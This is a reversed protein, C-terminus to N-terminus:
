DAAALTHEIFLASPERYRPRSSDRNLLRHGVPGIGYVYAGSGARIGGIQRSLRVLVRQGALRNLARRCSRSAADTSDHVGVPFFISEIQRGTMLRLEAVMDIIALDRGLLNKEVESLQRRGTRSTM